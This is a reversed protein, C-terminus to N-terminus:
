LCIQCFFSRTLKLSSEKIYKKTYSRYQYVRRKDKNKENWKKSARQQAKSVLIIGRIVLLGVNM